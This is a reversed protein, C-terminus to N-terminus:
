LPFVARCRPRSEQNKRKRRQRERERMYTQGERLRYFPLGPVRGLPSGKKQGRFGMPESSKPSRKKVLQLCKLEVEGEGSVQSSM